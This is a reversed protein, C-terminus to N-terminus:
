RKVLVVEEKQRIVEGESNFMEFLVIYIGESAIDGLNKIGNWIIEGSTSLSENKWIKNIERGSLDFVTANGIFGQPLEYSFSAYDDNGDKNPSFVKNTVTIIKQQSTTRQNSASNILGPTGFGVSSAASTWNNEDESPDNVDIRELSVGDEEDLLFLHDKEDYDYGDISILDGNIMRGISVNGNDNNFNPLGQEYIQNVSHSSYVSTINEKNETFLLIEHPLISQPNIVKEEQGNDTNGLYIDDLSIELDTNNFIEVYDSGNGKPNFLIENVILDGKNARQLISFNILTDLLNGSLDSISKVELSYALNEKFLNNGIIKIKNSQLFKIEKLELFPSFTFNDVSVKSSDITENFDLLVSSEDVHFGIISPSDDDIIVPGVYFNDFFFKDARSSTYHCDLIFYFSAFPDLSFDITESIGSEYTAMLQALGDESQRISISVNPKEAVAGDNGVAIIFEEGNEKQNITLADSNGNEGMTIFYGDASEVNSSDAVLWINLFNQGSPNFNLEVDINWQAELPLDSIKTYLSSRGKNPAAALRLQGKDIRFDGYDGKWFISDIFEMEFSDDVQTHCLSPFFILFFLYKSLFIRM